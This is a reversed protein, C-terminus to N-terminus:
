ELNPQSIHNAVTPTLQVLVFYETKRNLVAAGGTGYPIEFQIIAEKTLMHCLFVLDNLRSCTYVIQKARMHGDAECVLFQSNSLLSNSKERARTQLLVTWQPTQAGFHTVLSVSFSFSFCLLFSFSPTPVLLSLRLRKWLSFPRTRKLDKKRNNDVGLWVRPDGGCHLDGWLLAGSATRDSWMLTKTSFLLGQPSPCAQWSLLTRSVCVCVCICLTLRYPPTPCFPCFPCFPLVLFVEMLAELLVIVTVKNWGQSQESWRVREWGGVCMCVCSMKIACMWLVHEWLFHLQSHTLKACALLAPCDSIYEVLLEQVKQSPTDYYFMDDTVFLNTWAVQSCVFLLDQM